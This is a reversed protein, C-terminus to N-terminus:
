LHQNIKNVDLDMQTKYHLITIITDDYEKKKFIQLNESLSFIEKKHHEIVIIGQKNLMNYEGIKKITPEILGKNYPPDLFIIDFKENKIKDLAKDVDLAVIHVKDTLGQLNERLYKLIIRDKEIFIARAAGRSLAEIGMAGTGAFIDCVSASDFIGPFNANIVNFIAGRIKDTTPRLVSKAYLLTKNKMTGAIIQM